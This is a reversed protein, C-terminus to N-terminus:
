VAVLLLTLKMAKCYDQVPTFPVNDAPQM